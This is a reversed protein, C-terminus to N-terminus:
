TLQLSPQIISIIKHLELFYYGFSRSLHIGRTKALISIDVSGECDKKIHVCLYSKYICTSVLLLARVNANAMEVLKVEGDQNFEAINSKLVSMFGSEDKKKSGKTEMHENIIKDFFRDFVEVLAKVKRGHGQLDLVGPFPAFDALNFDSSVHVLQPIAAKLGRQDFGEDGYKRGFVTLRVFATSLSGVMASVDVVKGASM